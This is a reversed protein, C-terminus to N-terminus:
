FRSGDEFPLHSSSFSVYRIKGNDRQNYRSYLEYHISNSVGYQLINHKSTDTCLIFRLPEWRTLHVTVTVTDTSGNPLATCRVFRFTRMHPDSRRVIAQPDFTTAYRKGSQLLVTTEFKKHDGPDPCFTFKNSIIARGLERLGELRVCVDINNLVERNRDFFKLVVSGCIVANTNHLTLLIKAPDHFWRWLTPYPDWARGIYYGIANHTTFNLTYIKYVLDPPWCSFFRYVFEEGGRCLTTELVSVGSRRQHTSM